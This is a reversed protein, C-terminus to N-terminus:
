PAPPAGESGGLGAAPRDEQAPLRFTVKDKGYNPWSPLAGGNPNGKEAFRVWAASILRSLQEDRKSAHGSLTDFVFPLEDGHTAPLQDPGIPAAFLYRWVPVGLESMRDAFAANGKNFQNDAFLRALQPKVDDDSSARYERLVAPANGGFNSAVFAEYKAVTGIPWNSVFLRGEAANGGIILPVKLVAGRRLAEQDSTPLVWGDITPGFIRPQSLARVAPISAAAKEQLDRASLGRLMALDRGIASGRAEADVLTGLPRLVGPSQLIAGRFLGKSLPSVLTMGLLSAGSSEGFVTIRDPDGGFAAINRRVWRLAAITDMIGYNGSANHDSERSLEPHSFFGFIGTRYNFSVVIAGQRALATGDQVPNSSSGGLFSGGYVWLMVPLKASKRHRPEWVNLFLCDESMGPARSNRRMQEAQICDSGFTRADRVGKWNRTPAPPKWRLAGTPPAAYPIGRFTAVVGGSGRIYGTEISRVPDVMVATASGCPFCATLLAAVFRSVTM